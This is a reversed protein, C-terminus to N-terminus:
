DDAAEEGPGDVDGPEDADDVESSENESADDIEVEQVTKDANGGGAQALSVSVVGSLALLGILLGILRRKM